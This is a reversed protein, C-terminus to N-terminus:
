FGEYIPDIRIASLQIFAPVQLEGIDIKKLADDVGHPSTVKGGNMAAVLRQLAEEQGPPVIVPADLLSRTQAVSPASRTTRMRVVAPTAATADEVPASIEVSPALREVQVAQVPARDDVVGTKPMAIIVVIATAALAGAGLWWWRMTSNTESAVRQRVRAEFAPSPQVDNIMERLERAGRLDGLLDDLDNRNIDTM